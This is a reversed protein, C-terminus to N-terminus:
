KLWFTAPLPEIRPLGPDSLSGDEMYFRCSSWRWRAAERVLGRRVPNLHLYDISAAVSKAETLNRDYGPGEQWFRFETKGSRCHVTLRRLLPADIRDLCKRIRNSFPQKIARLLDKVQFDPKAPYVLLHVHDPMFVFAALAFRHSAIAQDISRGLMERWVDNTLLPMKHFCSFTLEHCHGPEDFHRVTKRQGDPTRM